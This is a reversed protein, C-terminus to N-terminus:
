APQKGIGDGECCKEPLNINLRYEHGGGKRQHTNVWRSGTCLQNISGNRALSNTEIPSRQSIGDNHRCTAALLRIQMDEAEAMVNHFISFDLPIALDLRPFRDASDIDIQFVMLGSACNKKPHWEFTPEVPHYVTVM